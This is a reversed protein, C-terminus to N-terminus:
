RLKDQLIFYTECYFKQYYIFQKDFIRGHRKGSGVQLRKGLDTFREVELSITRRLTNPLNRSNPM